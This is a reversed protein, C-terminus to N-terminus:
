LNLCQLQSVINVLSLLSLIYLNKFCKLEENLVTYIYIKQKRQEGNLAVGLLSYSM